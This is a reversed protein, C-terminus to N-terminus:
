RNPTRDPTLPAKGTRHWLLRRARAQQEGIAAGRERYLAMIRKRDKSSPSADCPLADLLRDITRITAELEADTPPRRM